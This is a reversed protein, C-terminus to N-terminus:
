KSQPCEPTPPPAGKCCVDTIDETAEEENEELEAFWEFLSNLDSLNDCATCGETNGPGHIMVGKRIRGDAQKIFTAPQDKSSLGWHGVPYIDEPEYTAATKRKIQYSGEPIPDVHSGTSKSNATFELESRKGLGAFGKKARGCTKCKMEGTEKCRNCLVKKGEALGLVDVGGILDNFIVALLNLGGREAIPDRSLWRGLSVAYHRYGYYYTGEVTEVENDLYKTSFRYPNRHGFTGATTTTAGNGGFATYRQTADVTGNSRMLGTVNGNGDYWYYHTTSPNTGLTEDARLLGGVGGAGQMTGSLDTGWTYRVIRTSAATVEEEEIVNWGDYTFRTTKQVTWASTGANWTSVQKVVRRHLADYRNDIRTNGSTETSVMRNESDWGMQVIPHAPSIQMALQNGDLDYAQVAGNIDTYQDLANSTYNSNPVPPVGASGYTTRNGAADYAFTENGAGTPLNSYNSGTVQGIADYTYSDDKGGPRTIATRRGLSDLTYGLSDISNGNRTHALATLQGAADRTYSTLLNNARTLTTLEGALNYAYNAVPNGASGMTVAGLQGRPTYSYNRISSGPYTLGIMRGDPDYTYNVAKLTNMPQVTQRESTKRDLVDYTWAVTADLNSLATLRGNSDYTYTVDSTANSWDRLTLQGKTNYTYTESAGSATARSLLSGDARYTYSEGTNDPYTKSLLRGVADYAWVRSNGRADTLTTMRGDLDYAYQVTQNKADTVSILQHAADYARTESTGDPFQTGSKLGDPTYTFQTVRSLPDTISVLRNRNNYSHTTTRGLADTESILNGVDDYDFVNTSASPTGAAQTQQALRNELDYAATEQRGSPRQTLIRNGGIDYGYSSTQNLPDTVSLVRGMTDHTYTTTRNGPATETLKDGFGNYTYTTTLVRIDKYSALRDMADYTMYSYRGLADTVRDVKFAANYRYSTTTADPTGFGVTTTLLNWELDYTHRIQRGSPLTILTPKGSTNCGGCSSGAGGASAAYAFTTTRGLADTMSIRQKFENWVYTSTHGAEDTASAVNGFDDYTTSSTSGDPHTVQTMQGRLNYSYGTVRGLADTMSALRNLADYAYTTVAGAADTHTLKLGTGSYSWSETGTNRLRHTLPKGISNYTWTEYSGDPHDTRTRRNLSDYQHSTTRSVSGSTITQSLVRGLLNYSIAKTTGDPYTTLTPRADADRVWHTTRGMEDTRSAVFGTGGNGYTYTRQGGLGNTTKVLKGSTGYEQKKVKGNPYVYKPKHAGDFDSAAVLEGNAGSREERIFGLVTSADYTWTINTFRGKVMPDVASSLIPQTYPHIQTYGYNAVTGDPYVASTLTAWKFWGSADNFVSYTYNVERGDSATVKTIVNNPTSANNLGVFQIKAVEDVVGGPIFYRVKSVQRATGCDLGVYGNRMQSYRFYTNTDNDFAKTGEQGSAFAPESFFATGTILANNQDYFELEAMPIPPANRYDNVTFLALWRFSGTNTVTVERWGGATSATADYDATGLVTEQQLFPGLNTYSFDIFHGAADTVRRVTTDTVSNYTFTTVNGESDVSSEIRYYNAGSGNVYRKFNLRSGNPNQLQYDDNTQVIRGSLDTAPLWQTTDTADQTYLIDAGNPYAIRLMAAPNSASSSDRMWYLYNHSWASEKGFPGRNVSVASTRSNGIRTFHLAGTGVGGFLQLDRVMRRENGSYASFSGTRSSDCNGPDQTGPSGCGCNECDEDGEDDPCDDEEPESSPGGSNCNDCPNGGGSGGSSQSFSPSPPWVSFFGALSVAAMLLFTASFKIRSQTEQSM